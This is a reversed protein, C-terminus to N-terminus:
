RIQRDSRLVPNLQLYVAGESGNAAGVGLYLPGIITDAGLFMSGGYKLNRADVHDLDAWVDGAEISFGAYVGGGIAAPLKTLERYYILEALVANQDYLGGRSYGSLQLFGGLSSRDYFPLDDGSLKIGAVVRPVITNKGFTIPKYLQARLRSYSQEAGLEERSATVVASGLFGSTPFNARDLTDITLAARM